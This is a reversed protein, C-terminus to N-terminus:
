MHEKLFKHLVEFLDCRTPYLPQVKSNWLGRILQLSQWNGATHGQAQKRVERLRWKRRQFIPIFLLQRVPYSLSTHVTTYFGLYLVHCVAPQWIAGIKDRTAFSSPGSLHTLSKNLTYRM